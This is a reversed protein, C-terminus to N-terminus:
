HQADHEGGNGPSMAAQMEAKTRRKRRQAPQVGQAQRLTSAKAVPAALPKNPMDRAVLVLQFAQILCDRKEASAIETMRKSISLALNTLEAYENSQNSM